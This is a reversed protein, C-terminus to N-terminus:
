ARQEFAAREFLREVAGTVDQESPWGVLEVDRVLCDEPTVRGFGQHANGDNQAASELVLGIRLGIEFVPLANEAWLDADPIERAM